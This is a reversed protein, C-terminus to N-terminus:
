ERTASKGWVVIQSVKKKLNAIRGRVYPTAFLLIGILLLGWITNRTFNSTGALTLGSSLIQICFLSIFINMVKGGGAVVWAGGMLVVLMATSTLSNGYDPRLACMRSYSVIGGISSFFGSLMYSKMLTKFNSNGSYKNAVANAGLLRCQAGFATKEFVFEAALYCILALVLLYPITGFMNETGLASIADPAGVIANGKTIVLAMGQFLQSTASTVLVATLGLGAVFYGNLVGSLVGIVMSVALGAVLRVTPDVIVDGLILGQMISGGCIASFNAVAVISMNLGGSVVIVFMALGYIGIEALQRTMSQFNRITFFKDPNFSGIAFTLLLTIILLSYTKTYQKKGLNKM